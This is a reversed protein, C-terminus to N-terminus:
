GQINSLIQFPRKSAELVEVVYKEILKLSEKDSKEALILIGRKMAEDYVGGFTLNILHDRWQQANSANPFTFTITKFEKGDKEGKRNICCFITVNAGKEVTARIIQRLAIPLYPKHEKAKGSECCHLEFDYIKLDCKHDKWM